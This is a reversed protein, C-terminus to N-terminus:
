RRDRSSKAYGHYGGNDDEAQAFPNLNDEYVFVSPHVSRPINTTAPERISPYQSQGYQSAAYTPYPRPSPAPANSPQPRPAGHGLPEIYSGRQSRLSKTSASSSKADSEDGRSDFRKRLRETEKELEREREREKEKEAREREKEKESREPDKSIHRKSGSRRVKKEDSSESPIAGSMTAPSTSKRRARKNEEKLKANEENLEKITKSLTIKEQDLIENRDSLARWRAEHEKVEKRANSLAAELETAKKKWKDRAECATTLADQLAYISSAHEDEYDSVSPSERRFKVSKSM